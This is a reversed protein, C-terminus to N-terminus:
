SSYFQSCSWSFSGYVPYDPEQAQLYIDTRRDSIAVYYKVFHSLRRLHVDARQLSLDEAPSVIQTGSNGSLCISLCVPISHVQRVQTLMWTFGYMTAQIKHRWSNRVIHCMQSIEVTIPPRLSLRIEQWGLCYMYQINTTARGSGEM